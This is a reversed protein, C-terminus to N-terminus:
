RLQKEEAGLSAPKLAAATTMQNRATSPEAAPPESGAATTVSVRCDASARVHCGSCWSEAAALASSAGRAGADTKGSGGRHDAASQNVLRDGVRSRTEGIGGGVGFLFTPKNSVAFVSDKKGAASRGSWGRRAKRA